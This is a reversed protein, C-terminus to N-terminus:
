FPLDLVPNLQLMQARFLAQIRALASADDGEFRLVLVPTTNSARVLGWGDAFDARLGDIRTLEAGDFAAVQQFAEVFAHTEGEGMPIKIEPTSVAGPLEALVQATARTDGALIELLRCAAYLGDDFGFWREGFFFHGSMEGALPSRHQRLEQKIYSHGTRVMVPRGGAAKIERALRGTCKVDFIIPADPNRALVDRAFLMMLRDPFIIEGDPAVVGLRDGDGDFAVGLDAKFNRVCLKLDELTKPDGPDPHHNPFSGDVEAYLPIVDAGIAGLLRPAVMGAIGNGCDAVVKLPRELQIDVGIREVYQDLIDHAEIEGEGETQEGREIRDALATIAEGFLTEGGLVIKFGNYDPPNHSGTVMVGSGGALEHAGYYLVPTPVAGLDIVRLGSRMLGRGLAALLRPGSLRGDRAIAISQLHRARAEAGVALGIWEAVEDDLGQGVVGRIDYARFMSRDLTVAPLAAPQRPADSEDVEAEPRAGLGSEAQHDARASTAAEDAATQADQFSEEAQLSKLIEGIEDLEPEPEAASRDHATDAPRATKTAPAKPEAAPSPAASVRPPENLTPEVRAAAPKAQGDPRPKAARPRRHARRNFVIGLIMLLLGTTIAVVVERNGVPAITTSKYWGLEFLSGPIPVTAADPPLSRGIGRLLYASSDSRQILALGDVRPDSELANVIVSVPMSMFVFAEPQRGDGLRQAFALYEEDGGAFHVQVPARTQHRARILMEMVAYGAGPLGSLDAREIPEAVARAELITGLGRARLSDRLAEREGRGELAQRAQSVVLADALVAHIRDLRGALMEAQERGAREAQEIALQASLNNWALYVGFATLLLGAALAFLSVSRLLASGTRLAGWNM